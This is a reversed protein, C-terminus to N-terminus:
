MLKCLKDSLGVHPRMRVIMSTRVQSRPECLTRTVQVGKSIVEFELNGTSPRSITRTTSRVRIGLRVVISTWSVVVGSIVDKLMYTLIDIDRFSKTSVFLMRLVFMGKPPGVESLSGGIRMVFVVLLVWREFTMIIYTSADGTLLRRIRPIDIVRLPM